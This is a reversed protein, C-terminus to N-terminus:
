FVMKLNACRAVSYLIIIGEVAPSFLNTCSSSNGCEGISVNQFYSAPNSCNFAIFYKKFGVYETMEMLNVVMAVFADCVGTSILKKSAQCTQPCLLLPLGTIEDCPPMGMLCLAHLALEVCAPTVTEQPLFSVVFYGRELMMDTLMVDPPLRQPSTYESARGLVGRCVNSQPLLTCSCIYTIAATM